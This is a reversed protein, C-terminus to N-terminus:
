GTSYECEDIVLGDEIDLEITIQPVHEVLLRVSRIFDVESEKRLTSVADRVDSLLLRALARCEAIKEQAEVGSLHEAIQLNISLATLHHGLLDHLDRAIRTRESQRSAESLLHQTAILESNLFEARDRADEASKAVRGMLLAFLHFTAYLSVSYIADNSEWHFHMILYWAFLTGVLQLWLVRESYLSTGIAVWIITYIPLFDFSVLWAIAFTSALQIGHALRRYALALTTADACAILLAVVNVLAFAIMPLLQEGMQVNNRLVLLIALGTVLAWTLIGAGYQLRTLRQRESMVANQGAGLHMAMPWFDHNLSTVLPVARTFSLCMAHSCQLLLDDHLGNM